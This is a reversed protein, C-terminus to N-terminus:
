NVTHPVTEKLSGAVSQWEEDTGPFHIQRLAYCAEFASRDIPDSPVLCLTVSELGYCYRFSGAGIRCITEPLTLSRLSTCFSFANVGIARVPLGGVYSPVTVNADNGRYGTLILGGDHETFTFDGAPTEGRWGAYLTCNKAPIHEVPITLGADTFWGAFTDRGRTPVPLESEVTYVGDEKVPLTGGNATFHVSYTALSFRPEFSVRVSGDEGQDSSIAWGTFSYGSREPTELEQALSRLHKTDLDTSSLTVFVQETNEAPSNQFINRTCGFILSSAGLILCLLVTLLTGRKKPKNDLLERFRRILDSQKYFGVNLRIPTQVNRRIVSLITQGYACRGDADLGRLVAEDCALEMEEQTQRVLLWVLPNWWFCCIDAILILKIWLDHRRYHHLEHRFVTALADPSLDTKGLLITPRFLGCLCPGIQGNVVLLRPYRKGPFERCVTKYLCLLEGEACIAARCVRRSSIWQPILLLCFAILAGGGWIVAALFLLLDRSKAIKTSETTENRTEAPLEALPHEESSTGGTEHGPSDEAFSDIPYFVSADSADSPSPGYGNNSVGNTERAPITVSAKPPFSVPVLSPFFLGTPILIRIACILLILYCVTHRTRKGFFRVSFLVIGTLLFSSVALIALSPYLITEKM